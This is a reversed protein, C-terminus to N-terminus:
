WFGDLSKVSFGEVRGFRRGDLSHQINLCSGDDDSSDTADEWVPLRLCSTRRTEM